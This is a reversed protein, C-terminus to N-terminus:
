AVQGGVCENDLLSARETLQMFRARQGIVEEALPAYITREFTQRDYDLLGNPCHREDEWGPHNLVPYLCIGHLPVGAEMARAVQDAVHRLWFPRLEAEIGTESIVIPRGYRAFNAHLLESFPRYARDSGDWPIPEGGEYWQNHCYYNVGILDLLSEDGGLEPHLRGAIMDWAHYQAENHRAAREVSGPSNRRPVVHIAPEVSLFRATPVVERIARMASICARALQKKLADGKGRAFPNFIAEAGGAWAMFSIENVPVFFPTGETESQVVWAAERAFATFRDVFAPSWIDLGDPWGYHFLDWIVQTGTIRAARLMPLISSWDYCYPMREIRHWRLGDRVTRIGQWGLLMYDQAALKDHRTAALIDLRRRDKRRHTSCEFGGQMFSQFLEGM